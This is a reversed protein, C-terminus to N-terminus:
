EEEMMYKKADRKLFPTYFAPILILSSLLALTIAVVFAQGFLRLPLLASLNLVAFGGATTLAAGYMARGTTASANEVWVKQGASPNHEVEEELRITYHVAYDVGLGLSLAGITVTQPNIQYGTYGMIGYVWGVVMMLPIWSVFGRALGQQLDKQRVTHISVLMVLIVIAVIATSQISSAAVDSTTQANILSRGSLRLEGDGAFGDETLQLLENIRADLDVTAQWDLTNAQFSILTQQGNSHLIGDTLDRGSPNNLLWDSLAAWSGSENNDVGNMLGELAEDQLRSEDLVNWLGSPIGNSDPSESIAAMTLNWSERGDPSIIDGDYVIYLPSRSSQFDDSLMIFDAVVEISPDFQDRQEFGVELQQFGFYMPMLLIIAIIGVKWPKTSLEGLGKAIPGVEIKSAKNISIKKPPIITMLAPLASISLIYIFFLGIAIVTGFVQLFSLSSFRFSLFGVMDTFIAILLAISTFITGRRIAVKRAELSFDRLTERSVDDKSDAVKLEERIRLVVHLGYDVGIALLLVPISNMAANFTMNVGLTQLWGSLGYTAAIAFITLTMVYATERVSRFNFWLIIALLMFASGTLIGIEKGLTETSGVGFQSFSFTRIESDGTAEQLDELLLKSWDNINEEVIAFQNAELGYVEPDSSVALTTIVPGSMNWPDEREGVPISSLMITRYDISQQGKLAYLDSIMSELRENMLDKQVDSKASNFGFLSYTKWITENISETLNQGSDLRPLWENPDGPQWDILSESTVPELKPIIKAIETLNDLSENFSSDNSNRLTETALSVQSLWIQATLPDQISQWQIASGAMGFNAQSGFIPYQYEKFNSDNLLMAESLALQQWTDTLLLEGEDMEDIVRIFDVSAQYEDEIENLLDVTENDPFFGDESNDFVLQSAGSSLALIVVFIIALTSKPKDVSRSTLM